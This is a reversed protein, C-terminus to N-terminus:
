IGLGFSSMPNNTPKQTKGMRVQKSCVITKNQDEFVNKQEFYTLVSFFVSILLCASTLNQNLQLYCPATEYKNLEVTHYTHYKGNPKVANYINATFTLIYM